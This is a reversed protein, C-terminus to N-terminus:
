GRKMVELAKHTIGQRVKLMPSWPDAKLGALRRPVTEVTFHAPVLAPTVESWTLPVAVPAGPRARTSYPAVATAGRDNRFFDIFIKGTRKAKAMQVVYRESDAAMATAVAQAFDKVLPWEHEPRIPAVVHLGKGGTTKAFSELGLQGLRDRMETAAEVVRAFPLAPDPDFDFILRDPREIDDVRASWPHIELVGMQALGILGEATDITLYEGTGEKERITVSGIGPPLAAESHKQYFCAKGTGGPCRVFSIPRGVIHPLMPDAVEALYEALGRKTLGSEPDLVREPHTLTVKALADQPSASM